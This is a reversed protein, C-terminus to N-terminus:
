IHCDYITVLTDPDLDKLFAKWYNDLWRKDDDSTESSMGWYGMDGKEHWVGDVTVVAFTSFTLNRRFFEKETGYKETFYEPKYLTADGRIAKEWQLKLHWLAKPDNRMYEWDIDVMKAKDAYEAKYEHDKMLLSAEGQEGEKGHILRLMGQWRGGVQYWDWESKPNYTSMRYPKGDEDILLKCSNWTPWHPQVTTLDNVDLGVIRKEEDAEKTFYEVMNDIDKQEIDERYPEVELNEDYPALLEEANDGIVLVTFHSM